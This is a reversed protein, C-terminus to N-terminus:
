KAIGAATFQRGQELLVWGAIRFCLACIGEKMDEGDCPLNWEHILAALEKRNM